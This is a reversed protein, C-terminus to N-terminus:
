NNKIIIKEQTNTKIESLKLSSKQVQESINTSAQHTTSQAWSKTVVAAEKIKSKEIIEHAKDPIGSEDIKSKIVDRAEITKKGIVSNRYNM